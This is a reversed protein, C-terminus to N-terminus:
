PTGTTSTADDLLLRDVAQDLITALSARPRDVIDDALSRLFDALPEDDLITSARLLVTALRVPDPATASV